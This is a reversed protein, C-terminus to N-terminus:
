YRRLTLRAQESVLVLEERNLTTITFTTPSEYMGWKHLEDLNSPAVVTLVVTPNNYDLNCIYRTPVPEGTANSLDVQGLRATHQQFSYYLQDPYSIQGDALNDISMLQWQGDLQGNIDSKYCSPLLLCVLGILIYKLAKNQM